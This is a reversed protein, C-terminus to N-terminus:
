TKLSGASLYIFKAALVTYTMCIDEECSNEDIKQFFVSKLSLYGRSIASSFLDVM